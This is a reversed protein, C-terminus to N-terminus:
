QAAPAPLAPQPEDALELIVLVRGDALAQVPIGVDHSLEHGDAAAANLAAELDDPEVHLVRFRAM